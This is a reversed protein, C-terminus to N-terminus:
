HSTQWEALLQHLAQSSDVQRLKKRMDEDRFMSALQALIKASIDSLLTEPNPLQM